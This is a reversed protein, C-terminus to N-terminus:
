SEGGAKRQSLFSRLDAVSYLMKKGVRAASIEGRRRADGLVHKALGLLRAAEREDVAIRDDAALRGSLQAVVAEVVPRLDEPSFVVQM